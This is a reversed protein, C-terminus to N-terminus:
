VRRKWYIGRAAIIFPDPKRAVASAKRFTKKRVTHPRGDFRLLVKVFHLLDCSIRATRPEKAFRNVPASARWRQRKDARPCAGSSLGGSNNSYNAYRPSSSPLFRGVQYEAAEQSFVSLGDASDESIVTAHAEPFIRSLNSNSRRSYRRSVISSIERFSLNWEYRLYRAFQLCM